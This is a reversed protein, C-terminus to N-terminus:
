RLVGYRRMRSLHLEDDKSMEELRAEAEELRKLAAALKEAKDPDVQRLEEIKDLVLQKYLDM